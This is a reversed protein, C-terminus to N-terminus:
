SPQVGYTKSGEKQFTQIRQLISPNAFYVRHDSSSDVVLAGLSRIKFRELCTMFDLISKEM